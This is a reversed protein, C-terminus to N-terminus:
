NTCLKIKQILLKELHNLIQASTSDFSDNNNIKIFKDSEIYDITKKVAEIDKLSVVRNFHTPPKSGRSVALNDNVSLIVGGLVKSNSSLKLTDIQVGEFIANVGNTYYSDTQNKILDTFIKLIDTNSYFNDISDKNLDPRFYNLTKSILGLNYSQYFNIKQLLFKTFVTKGVSNTGTIFFIVPINKSNLEKILLNIKQIQIM